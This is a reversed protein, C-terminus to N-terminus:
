LYSISSEEDNFLHSNTFIKELNILKPKQPLLKRHDLKKNMFEMKKYMPHTTQIGNTSKTKVPIYSCM